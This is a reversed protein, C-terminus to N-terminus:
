GLSAAAREALWDVSQRIGDVDVGDAAMQGSDYRAWVGQSICALKWYSFALYVDLGSCDLDSRSRYHEALDARSAFGPLGSPSSSITRTEGPEAWTALAYGLDALPDGLTSIEWDLVAAVSGDTACICNGLRYDGHVVSVRQQAPLRELLRDHVRDMLPTEGRSQQYQGYWRRMQRGVYGDHRGLDGLGIQEVDVRRLAAAVEILSEGARRRGPGDLWAIVDAEEHLVRGDVFSMVYFPAGTVEPDDCMAIAVPVPIGVPGLAAIVRHERSMDHASPLLEGTPPRRLVTRAGDADTVLYTLNSHGGTLRVLDLPGRAGPVHTEYWRTVAAPDIGEPAVDDM